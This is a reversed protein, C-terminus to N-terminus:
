RSRENNCASRLDRSCWDQTISCSCEDAVKCMCQKSCSDVGVRQLLSYLNIFVFAKHVPGFTYLKSFQYHSWNGGTSPSQPVLAMDDHNIHLLAKIPTLLLDIMSIKVFHTDM